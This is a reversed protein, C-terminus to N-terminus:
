SKSTPLTILFHILGEESVWFGTPQTRANAGQAKPPQLSSSAFLHCVTAGMKTNKKWPHTTALSIVSKFMNKAKWPEKPNKHSWLQPKNFYGPSQRKKQIEKPNKAWSRRGFGSKVTEASHAATRSRLRLSASPFRSIAKAWVVPTAM